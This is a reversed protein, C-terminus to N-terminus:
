KNTIKNWYYSPVNDIKLHIRSTRDKFIKLEKAQGITDIPLKEMLISHVPTILYRLLHRTEDITQSTVACIVLVSDHVYMAACSEIKYANNVHLIHKTDIKVTSPLYVETQLSRDVWDITPQMNKHENIAKSVVDQKLLMDVDESDKKADYRPSPFTMFIIGLITSIIGTATIFIGFSKQWLPVHSKSDSVLSLALGFALFIIGLLVGISGGAHCDHSFYGTM